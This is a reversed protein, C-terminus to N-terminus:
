SRASLSNIILAVLGCWSVSDEVEVRLDLGDLIVNDMGRWRPKDVPRRGGLIGM